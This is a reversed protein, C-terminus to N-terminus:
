ALTKLRDLQKLLQVAKKKTANRTNMTSKELFRRVVKDPQIKLEKLAEVVKGIAINRCENTEFEHHEVKLLESLIQPKLEPKANAIQTLAFIAHNVTSLKGSSLLKVLDDTLGNANFSPKSAAMLGLIDIGTWKLIQNKEALLEKFLDIYPFLVEPEKKATELLAKAFGFKIRPDKSKLQDFDSITLM